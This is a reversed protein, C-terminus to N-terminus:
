ELFVPRPRPSDFALAHVTLLCACYIFLTTLQPTLSPEPTLGLRVGLLDLGRLCGVAADVAAEPSPQREIALAYM